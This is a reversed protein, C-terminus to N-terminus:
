NAENYRKWGTALAYIDPNAELPAMESFGRKWGHTKMVGEVEERIENLDELTGTFRFRVYRIKEGMAYLM